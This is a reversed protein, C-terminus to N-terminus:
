QGIAGVMIFPWPLLLVMGAAWLLLRLWTRTRVLALVTVFWLLPSVVALWLSIQYALPAVLFEAYPQLRLGGILWGIAEIVALGAFVGFAVLAVNTAGAPAGTDADTDAVAEPGTPASAPAPTDLTAADSVGVSDSGKGVATYGPPLQSGTQLTPDDDGWTLAEDDRDNSVKEPYGQAGDEARFNEACSRAM